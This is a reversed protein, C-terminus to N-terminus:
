QVKEMCLTRKPACQLSNKTDSTNIHKLAARENNKHVVCKLEEKLVKVCVRVCLYLCVCVCVCYRLVEPVSM